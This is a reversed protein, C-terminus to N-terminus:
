VVERQAQVYADLEDRTVGARELAAALKKGEGYQTLALRARALRARREADPDALQAAVQAVEAKAQEFDKPAARPAETPAAPGRFPTVSGRQPPQWGDAMLDLGGQLALGIQKAAYAMAYAQQKGQKAIAARRMGEVFWVVKLAPDVDRWAGLCSAMLEGKDVALSLWHRIAAPMSGPDFFAGPPMAAKIAALQQVDFPHGAAKPLGPVDGEDLTLSALPTPADEPARARSGEGGDLDHQNTMYTRDGDAPIGNSTRHVDSPRGSARAGRDASKRDADARRRELLKGAYRDWDHWRWGDGEIQWWGAAVMAEGFAIASGTWGSGRAAAAIRNTPLVGSPAYEFFFIISMAVHGVATAQEVGLLDMLLFTKPHRPLEQHLEVWAM